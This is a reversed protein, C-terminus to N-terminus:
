GIQPIVNMFDGAIPDVKLRNGYINKLTECAHQLFDLFSIFQTYIIYIM